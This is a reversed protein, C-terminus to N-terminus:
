ARRQPPAPALGVGINPRVDTGAQLDAGPAQRLSDPAALRAQGITERGLGLAGTKGGQGRLELSRQKFGELEERLKGAQGDKEQSAKEIMGDLHDDFARIKEAFDGPGGGLVKEAKEKLGKFDYGQRQWPQFHSDYLHRGRTGIDTTLIRWPQRSAPAIAPAPAAAQGPAADTALGLHRLTELDERELAKEMRPLIKRRFADFDRANKEPEDRGSLVFLPRTDRTGDAHPPAYFQITRAGKEVTVTRPNYASAAYKLSADGPAHRSDQQAANRIPNADTVLSPAGRRDKGVTVDALAAPTAEVWASQGGGKGL